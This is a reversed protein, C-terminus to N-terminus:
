MTVIARSNHSPFKHSCILNRFSNRVNFKTNNNKLKSIHTMKNYILKRQQKIKKNLKQKRSSEVVINDFLKKKLGPSPM